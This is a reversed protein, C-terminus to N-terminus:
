SYQKALPSQTPRAVQKPKQQSKVSKKDGTTQQQAQERNEREQKIKDLKGSFFPRDFAVLSLSTGIMVVAILKSVNMQERKKIFLKKYEQAKSYSCM